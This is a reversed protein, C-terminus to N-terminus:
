CRNYLLPWLECLNFLTLFHCTFFYLCVVFTHIFSVFQCLIVIVNGESYRSCESVCVSMLQLGLMDAVEVIRVVHKALFNHEKQYMRKSETKNLQGTQGTLFQETRLAFSM